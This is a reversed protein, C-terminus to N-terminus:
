RPTPRTLGNVTGFSIVLAALALTEILNPSLPGFLAMEVAHEVPELAM